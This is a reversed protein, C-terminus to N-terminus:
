CSEIENKWRITSNYKRVFLTNVPCCFRYPTKFIHREEVPKSWTWGTHMLSLKYFLSPNNNEM